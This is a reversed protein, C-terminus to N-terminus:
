EGCIDCRGRLWPKTTSGYIDLAVADDFEIADLAHVYQGPSRGGEHPPVHIHEGAKM